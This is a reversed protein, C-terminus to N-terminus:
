LLLAGARLIDEHGEQPSAGVAGRREQAALWLASYLVGPPTECFCFIKNQSVISPLPEINFM